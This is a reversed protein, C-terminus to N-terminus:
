WASPLLMALQTVRPDDCNKFDGAFWRREFTDADVGLVQRAEADLLSREQAPDLETIEITESAMQKSM